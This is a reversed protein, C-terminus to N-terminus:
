AKVSELEALLKMLSQPDVPKILHHDFGADESKRRDDDQGWGTVAILIMKKDWAQAKMQRCAEYGNLKPLGIDCLVVHPQFERAATVAEEGDHATHVNNGMMKLLMALSKAADRNDDVVLIRLDSTPQAKDGDDSAQRPYTQEVVIPLRVVFESGQGPGGSKAEVSGGHMEVLRKVLCLGIGLGGQSRSLAGEVQSFMQFITPLKDAPIGIGTDTVSVVVDSGQLEARLDIRGGRETYKAANNLLNLFVQALRTLDADVIVPGPPLTLTLEHGMSEILPRSTEVAGQVIKALEVQERKLELKGQNIRSIDMLDDILRAMAQTQRDIIETAWKLEPIDPANMRLIEVANRVPALPNRLEHALTALFENKRRDADSLDAALQRLKNEAQKRETIDEIGLLILQSNNGPKNVRRANLSMIKRGVGEFEHEVEFGEITTGHKPLIEELLERLKPIDWQRNGLDYVLRGDTEEPTVAFGKYFARNATVVRLDNDLVLFAHRLTSLINDAYARSDSVLKEQRRRETVDRFILVGGVIEGDKSRIPAASDDIFWETGDKAILITHNALGIIVGEALAKTVPNEVPQRTDENVIHFVTDLPQGLAEATTWGTLSEAVPNLQTIRGEADTAIVGDGICALTTRLREGQEAIGREGSVIARGVTGGVTVALAMGVILLILAFGVITQVDQQAAVRRADYTEVADVQMEDDLLKELGTRLLYFKKSDELNAPRNEADLLLSQGLKQLEQWLPAFRSAMDRQRDTTTLREYEKLQQEVQAAETVADQRAQPEGTQLFARVNLVYGLTNIELQRAAASLNRANAMESLQGEISRVRAIIAVSSLVLLATLAGFGLWLKQSTTM